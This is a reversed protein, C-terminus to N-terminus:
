RFWHQSITLQVGPLMILHFKFRFEIMEIWSFAIQFHRRGFHRPHPPHTTPHHTPTPTPTPTPHPPTPPPPPHPHPPPPRPPHPATYLILHKSSVHSITLQVGPLMILHFKFRFEIMEIWSFAIQFHRRGFHRPHPPHTTPHHHHPTTPHHTPPPPPHPPATYLILHKSSVHSPIPAFQCWLDTHHVRDLLWM